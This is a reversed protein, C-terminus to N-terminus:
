KKSFKKKWEEIKKHNGSVLDRPVDWSNKSNKNPYFKEPRTYSPHSGKIEELSEKKGLVGPIKRSVSDMFIMAPLEGGSVVYDGISIEEDVINKAVREDVGEYRGCVFIINDYKLFKRAMNDDFKKGRTSFLIKITKEKKKRKSIKDEIHNIGKSIPEVKLVMGPGGGYPSDDVTKHRGDGWKHIDYTFVKFLKKSKAKGMISSNFYEEIVNPFLTLVHFQM